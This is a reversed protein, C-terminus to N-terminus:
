STHHVCTPYQHLQENNPLKEAVWLTRRHQHGIGPSCITDVTNIALYGCVPRRPSLDVLMKMMFPQYIHIFETSDQLTCIIATITKNAVNNPFWSAHPPSDSM